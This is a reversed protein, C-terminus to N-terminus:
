NFIYNVGIVEGQWKSMEVSIKGSSRKEVEAKTKEPSYNAKKFTHIVESKGPFVNRKKLARKDYGVSARGDFMLYDDGYYMRNMDKFNADSYRKAMDLLDMLETYNPENFKGVASAKRETIFSEFTRINKM